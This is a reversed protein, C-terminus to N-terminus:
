RNQLWDDLEIGMRAFHQMNNTVLICNVSAAHGGIMMDPDDVRQGTQELMARHVKEDFAFAFHYMAIGLDVKQLDWGAADM